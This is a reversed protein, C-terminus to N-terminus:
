EFFANFGDTFQRNNELWTKFCDFGQFPIQNAVVAAANHIVSKSKFQLGINAYINIRGDSLVTHRWNNLPCVKGKLIYGVHEGDDTLRAFKFHVDQHYDFKSGDVNTADIPLDRQIAEAYISVLDFRILKEQKQM